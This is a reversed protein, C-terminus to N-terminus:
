GRSYAIYKQGDIVVKRTAYSKWGLIRVINKANTQLFLREEETEYEILGSQGVKVGDLLNAVERSKSGTRVRPPLSKSDVVKIKM